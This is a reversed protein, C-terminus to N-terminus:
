GNLAYARELKDNVNRIYFRATLENVLLREAIQDADLGAEIWGCVKEERDSLLHDPCARLRPSAGNHRVSSPRNEYLNCVAVALNHHSPSGPLHDLRSEHIQTEAGAPSLGNGVLLIQIWPWHSQITQVLAQGNTDASQLDILVIDPQVHPCIREIGPGDRVLGVLDFKTLALHSHFRPGSAVLVLRIRKAQHSLALLCPDRKSM